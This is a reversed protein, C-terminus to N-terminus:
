RAIQRCGSSGCEGANPCSLPLRGASPYFSSRNPCPQIQYLDNFKATARARDGKRRYQSNIWPNSSLAISGSLGETSIVFGSYAAAVLWVFDVHVRKAIERALLAATVPWTGLEVLFCGYKSDFNPLHCIGTNSSTISVEGTEPSGLTLDGICIWRGAYYGNSIALTFITFVGSYWAAVIGSPM